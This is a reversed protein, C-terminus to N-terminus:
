LFLNTHFNTANTEPSVFAFQLRRAKIESHGGSTDFLIVLTVPDSYKIEIQESYFSRTIFRL